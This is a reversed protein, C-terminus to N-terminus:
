QIVQFAEFLEATTPMDNNRIGQALLARALRRVQDALDRCTWRLPDLVLAERDPSMAAWHGVYDAIRPLDPPTPM